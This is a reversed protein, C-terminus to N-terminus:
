RRVSSVAWYTGATVDGGHTENPRLGVAAAAKTDNIGLGNM